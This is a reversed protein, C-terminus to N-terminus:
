SFYEKLYQEETLTGTRVLTRMIRRDEEPLDSVSYKPTKPKNSRGSTAGEVLTTKSKPTSFKEPFRKKVEKAVFTYVEEVDPRNNQDYYGKGIMDAYQRLEPDTNYWKNESVWEIFAENTPKETTDEVPKEAKAAALQEDIEVVANYDEQSMATAKAQKLESIVKEREREAVHQHHQNLANFKEELRKNRKKLARLDDYLQKRDMFEEASLNRKGEVGDPQWGHNLAEQEVDSLKVENEQTEEGETEQGQVGDHEEEESKKILEEVDM